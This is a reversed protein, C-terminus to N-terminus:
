RRSRLNSEFNGRSESAKLGKAESGAAVGRGSGACVYVPRQWERTVPALCKLVVMEREFNSDRTSERRSRVLCGQLTQM